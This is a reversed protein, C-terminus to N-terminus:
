IDTRRGSYVAGHVATRGTDHAHRILGELIERIRPNTDPGIKDLVAQTVNSENLDRM